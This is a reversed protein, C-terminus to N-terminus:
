CGKVGNESQKHWAGACPCEPHYGCQPMPKTGHSPIIGECDCDAYECEIVDVIANLFEDEKGPAFTKAMHLLENSMNVIFEATERVEPDNFDLFAM